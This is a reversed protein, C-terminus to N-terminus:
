IYVCESCFHIHNELDLQAQEIKKRNKKTIYGKKEMPQHANVLKQLRFKGLNCLNFKQEKQFKETKPNKRLQDAYWHHAQCLVILDGPDENGLRDYTKHHVSLYRKEGCKEFQCKFKARELAAYRRQKWQNSKLYQIYKQSYSM